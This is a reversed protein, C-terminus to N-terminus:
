VELKILWITDTFIQLTQYLIAAIYTRAVSDSQEKSLNSTSFRDSRSISLVLTLFCHETCWIILGHSDNFYGALHVITKVKKM